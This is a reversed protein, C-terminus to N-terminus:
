ISMYVLVLWALGITIELPSSGSSNSNATPNSPTSYSPDSLPEALPINNSPPAAQDCLPGVWLSTCRCYNPHICQGTIHGALCSTNCPVAEFRFFSSFSTTNDLHYSLSFAGALDTVVVDPDDTTQTFLSFIDGVSPQNDFSIM